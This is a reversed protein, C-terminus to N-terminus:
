LTHAREGTEQTPVQQCEAVALAIEPLLDPNKELANGVVILDAGAGLAARASDGNRIGGGVIIPLDIERRVSKILEAGVPNVAGSGADLYIAQMGLQQGALATAAAIAPKDAPLPTTNSLYSVSTPRGGDVLLYGTATTSLRMQKIRGAVLVHQGILLEPNRGSLLSLLLLGDAKDNLQYINGPFLYVPRDTCAKLLSLYYDAQPENVLSGGWLFFDILGREAHACFASINDRSTQDPDILVALSKRGHHRDAALTTHLM